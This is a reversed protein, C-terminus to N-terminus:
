KANGFEEEDINFSKIASNFSRKPTTKVDYEFGGAGVISSAVVDCQYKPTPLSSINDIPPMHSLVWIARPERNM